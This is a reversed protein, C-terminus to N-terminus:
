KLCTPACLSNQLTCGEEGESDLLEQDSAIVRVRLHVCVSGRVTACYVDDWRSRDTRWVGLSCNRAPVHPYVRDQRWDQSHLFGATCSFCALWYHKSGFRCNALWRRMFLLVFVLLSITRFNQPVLCSERWAKWTKCFSIMGSLVWKLGFITGRDYVLNFEVYRGRRMLQWEKQEQECVVFLNLFMLELNGGFKAKVLGRRCKELQQEQQEQKCGVSM